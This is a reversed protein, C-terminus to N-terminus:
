DIWSIIGRSVISDIIKVLGLYTPPRMACHMCEQTTGITGLEGAAELQETRCLEDITKLLPERAFGRHQLPLLYITVLYSRRIPLEIVPHQYLTM